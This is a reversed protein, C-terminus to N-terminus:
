TVIHKMSLYIIVRTVACALCEYITQDKEETTQLLYKVASEEPKHKVVNTYERLQEQSMDYFRNVLDTMRDKIDKAQQKQQNRYNLLNPNDKLIADEEAKRQKDSHGRTRNCKQM